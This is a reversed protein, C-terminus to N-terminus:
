GWCAQKPGTPWAYQPPLSSIDEWVGSSAMLEPVICSEFMKIAGVMGGCIQMRFDKCVVKIKLIAGQVIAVRM